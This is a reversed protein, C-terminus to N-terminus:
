NAWSDDFPITVAPQPLRSNLHIKNMVTAVLFLIAFVVIVAVINIIGFNKEERKSRVSVDITKSIVKNIKKPATKTIKTKVIKKTASKETKTVTKKTPM